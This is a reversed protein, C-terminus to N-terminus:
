SLFRQKQGERRKALALPDCVCDVTIFKDVFFNYMSEGFQDQFVASDTLPVTTAVLTNLHSDYRSKLVHLIMEARIQDFRANSAPCLDDIALFQYSVLDSLSLEKNLVGQALDTSSWYQGTFNYPLLSALLGCMLYTKGSGSGGVFLLGFDPCQGQVCERGYKIVSNLSNRKGHFDEPDIGSWFRRPIRSEILLEISLSHQKM